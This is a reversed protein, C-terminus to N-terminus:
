AMNKEIAVICDERTEYCGYSKTEKVTDEKTLIYDCIEYHSFKGDYKIKCPKVIHYYGKQNIYFYFNGEASKYYKNVYYNNRNGMIRSRTNETRMDYPSIM